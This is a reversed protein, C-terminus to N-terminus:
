QKAEKLRGYVRKTLIVAEEVFTPKVRKAVPEISM